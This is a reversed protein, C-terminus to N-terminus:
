TSDRRFIEKPEGDGVADLQLGSAERRHGMEAQEAEDEAVGQRGRSWRERSVGASQELCLRHRAGM